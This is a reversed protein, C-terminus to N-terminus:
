NSFTARSYLDFVAGADDIAAPAVTVSCQTLGTTANSSCGTTNLNSTLRIPVLVETAWTGGSRNYVGAGQFVALTGGGWIVGATQPTRLFISGGPEVVATGAALHLNFIQTFGGSYMTLGAHAITDSNIQVGNTIPTIGGASGLAGGYFYLTSASGFDGAGTFVSGVFATTRANNGSGMPNAIVYPDFSDGAFRIGGNVAVTFQSATNGGVYGRLDGFHCTQVWTSGALTGADDSSQTTTAFGEGYITPLSYLQLTDGSSWSLDDPTIVACPSV